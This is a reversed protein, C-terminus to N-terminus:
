PDIFGELDGDSLLWDRYFKCEPATLPLDTEEFEKSTPGARYLHNGLLEQRAKLDRNVNRELERYQELVKEMEAPKPRSYIEGTMAVESWVSPHPNKFNDRIHIIQLGRAFRLLEMLCHRWDERQFKEKYHIEFTVSQLSTLLRFAEQLDEYAIFTFVSVSFQGSGTEPRDKIRRNDLECDQLTLHRISDRWGRREAFALIPLDWDTTVYGRKSYSAVFTNRGYFDMQNTEWYLQRCVRRVVLGKCAESELEVSYPSDFISGQKFGYKAYHERSWYCPVRGKISSDTAYGTKLTQSSALRGIEDKMDQYKSIYTMNPDSEKGTCDLFCQALRISFARDGLIGDKSPRVIAIPNADLLLHELIIRRIDWPLTLLTLSAM